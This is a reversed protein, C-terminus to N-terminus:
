SVLASSYISRAKSQCNALKALPKKDSAVFASIEKQKETLSKDKMVFEVGDPEKIYGKTINKFGKCKLLQRFRSILM